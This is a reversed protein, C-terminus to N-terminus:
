NEERLYLSLRLRAEVNPNKVTERRFAIEDLALAPINALAAEVFTRVQVYTGKVPLTIQLQQCACDADPQLRYDAQVLTVNADAALKFLSKLLDGRDKPSALRARFDAHRAALESSTDAELHQIRVNTLAQQSTEIRQQLQPVLVFHAGAALLLCLLALLPLWGARTALLSLQLPSIILPRRVM